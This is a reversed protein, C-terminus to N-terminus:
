STEPGREGVEARLRERVRRLLEASTFPKVLLNSGPDIAPANKGAEFHGSMFLVPVAGHLQTLKAVLELGSMGPMVIDTLVLDIPPQATAFVALASGSENANTVRYGGDVLAREVFRRVSVEDEVLLIHEAGRPALELVPAEPVAGAVAATSAPLFVRVATGQGVVSRVQVAGESQLVIGHVMALGLGTGRGRPKTTFFPEFLRKLVEPPMGTGTDVVELLTQREAALSSGLAVAAARDLGTCRLRVAGGTAMADRANGALNLVVQEVQGRDVLVPPAPELRLDLRHQEGLLREILRAMGAVATGLDLVEPRRVDRRAFALLQRTLTVGRRQAEQIEAAMERVEPDAHLAMMGANGGVVTLLNNFDHAVGGALRGVTEMRQTHALREELQRRATVDRVILLTRAEAGLRQQVSIELSRPDGSSAGLRLEVPVGPQVANLDVTQAADARRLLYELKEGVVMPREGGLLRLAVANADQVVGREDLELLGDPALAFLEAYRQRDHEAHVLARHYSVIIARTLFAACSVMLITVILLNGHAAPELAKAGPLLGRFVFSVVPLVVCTAGAFGYAGHVPFVMGAAVVLVPFAILAGGGFIGWHYVALMLECWIVIMVLLAAAAPRWRSLVLGAVALSLTISEETRAIINHPDIWLGYAILITYAFVTLGISLRIWVPDCAGAGPQAGPVFPRSPSM